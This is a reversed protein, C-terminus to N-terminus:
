MTIVIAAREKDVDDPDRNVLSAFNFCTLGYSHKGVPVSVQLPLHRSLKYPVPPVLRARLEPGFPALKKHILVKWPM